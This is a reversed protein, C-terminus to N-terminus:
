RDDFRKSFRSKIFQFDILNEVLKGARANFSGFSGNAYKQLGCNACCPELRVFRKKCRPCPWFGTIYIGVAFCTASYGYVVSMHEQLSPENEGFVFAAIMTYIFPFIVLCWFLTNLLVFKRWDKPYTREWSEGKTDAASINNSLFHPM